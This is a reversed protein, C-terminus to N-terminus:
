TKLHRLIDTVKEIRLDTGYDGPNRYAYGREQEVIVTHFGLSIAGSMENDSGDGVYVCESATLNFRELAIKYIAQEPKVIGVECSLIVEDLMQDLELRKITEPTLYNSNSILATKFNQERLNALMEPVGPYFYINTNRGKIEMDVLTQVNNLSLDLETLVRTAREASSKLEGTLAAQAYKRWTQFLIQPPVGLRTAIGPYDIHDPANYILTGWLDFLVGKVEFKKIKGQV